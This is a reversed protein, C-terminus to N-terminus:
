IKTSQKQKNDTFFSRLVLVQTLGIGLILCFEGLSWWQIKENLREARARGKAERLRHHTQYEIVTKLAEHITVCSTELQTLVTIHAGVDRAFPDEEGKIFDFYVVKHTFTSFENSFCFKYTGKLNTTHDFADYQKKTEKYIVQGKPDEIFVDVDYKGGSIVQYELTIEEDQDVDEYFCEKANDDLEFTLEIANSLVTLCLVMLFM